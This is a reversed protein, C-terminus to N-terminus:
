RQDATAPRRAFTDMRGTTVEYGGGALRGLLESREDDTLHRHEYLVARPASAAGFDVQDLIAFDVGEADVHLLDFTDVGAAALLSAYSLLPVTASSLRAELDRVVAAHRLLHSRELSGIQPLWYPDGPRSDAVFFFTAEGDTTGVAANVFQLGSARRYTHKLKAFLVPLPEVLVGRWGKRTILWHLPDNTSGDNSGIQVLFAPPQARAWARFARLADDDAAWLWDPVLGGFRGVVRPHEALRRSLWRLPGM